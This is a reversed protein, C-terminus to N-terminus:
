KRGCFRNLVIKFKQFCFVFYSIPSILWSQVILKYYYYKGYYISLSQSINKIIFTHKTPLVVEYKYIDKLFCFLGKKLESFTTDGVRGNIRLLNVIDLLRVGFTYFVDYGGKGVGGIMTEYIGNWIVYESEDRLGFLFLTHPFLNDAKKEKVCKLDTRWAGTGASWSIYYGLHRVFEDTNACYIFEGGKAHGEACYLIPKKDQHKQIFSLLANISGPLMKSRHNLMKCFLGSCKEFADIQNTFGKSNTRYYYFNNQKVRKIAKELDDNEGNDTVVVEFLANDVGQDYISNIVPIVWEVVGNTPICLSLLIKSEM